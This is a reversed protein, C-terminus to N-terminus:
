TSYSRTAISEALSLGQELLKKLSERDVSTVIRVAESPFISCV